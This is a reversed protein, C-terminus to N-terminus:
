VPVCIDSNVCSCLDDQRLLSGPKKNFLDARIHASNTLLGCFHLRVPHSSVHDREIMYVVVSYLRIGFWIATHSLSTVYLIPAYLVICCYIGRHLM